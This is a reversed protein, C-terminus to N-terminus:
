LRLEAKNGGKPNFVGSLSIRRRRRYLGGKWGSLVSSFEARTKRCLSPAMRWTGLTVCSLTSKGYELSIEQERKEGAGDIKAFCSQRMLRLGPAIFGGLHREASLFDLTLASGADM